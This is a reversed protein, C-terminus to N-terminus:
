VVFKMFPDLIWHLQWQVDVQGAFLIKSARAQNVCLQLSPFRVPQFLLSNKKIFVVSYSACFNCVVDTISVIIIIYM